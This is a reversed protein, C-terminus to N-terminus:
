IVPRRVGCDVAWLWNVGLRPGGSQLGETGHTTHSIWLRNGLAQPGGSTPGWAVTWLGTLPMHFGFDNQWLRYAGQHPGGSQQGGARHACGGILNTALAQIGGSHLGGAQLGGSQLGQEILANVPGLDTAWAQLSWAQLGGTWSHKGFDRRHHASAQNNLTRQRWTDNTKTKWQFHFGSNPESSSVPFVPACASKRIEVVGSSAIMCGVM